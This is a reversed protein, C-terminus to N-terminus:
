AVSETLLEPAIQYTAPGVRALKKMQVLEAIRAALTSRPMKSSHQFGAAAMRQWIQQVPLPGGAEHLQSVIAQHWANYRVREGRRARARQPPPQEEGDVRPATVRPPEFKVGCTQCSGTNPNWARHRLDCECFSRAYDIASTM